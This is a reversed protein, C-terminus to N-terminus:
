NCTTVQILQNYGPPPRLLLTTKTRLDQLVSNIAFYSIFLKFLQLLLKNLSLLSNFYATDGFIVRHLLSTMLVAVCM